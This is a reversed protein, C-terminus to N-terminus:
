YFLSATQEMRSIMTQMQSFQAVYRNFTQEMRQDFRDMRDELQTLSSRVSSTSSGLLSSDGRTFGELRGTLSKLVGGDGTMLETLGDPNDALFSDMRSSNISLKGSRDFEIGASTLGAQAFESRLQQILRRSTGDGSGNKGAEGVIKNYGDVIKQLESRTAESDQGITFTLVEDATQHTKQLDITVGDIVNEFKNSASTLELGGAGGLFIRADQAQSLETKNDMADQISTLAPDGDTSMTLANAAGTETSNILLKVEGGTRVISATVGPNNEDSNIANRLARLDGDGGLAAMDISFSEAGVGFTLQGSTPLPDSESGFDLAVQHATARQDIHIDYRGAAAQNSATINAFGEASQEVSYSEFQKTQTLTRLSDRLENVSSTLSSYLKLTDEYSAKRTNFFQDQNARDAQVFQAALTRIDTSGNIM